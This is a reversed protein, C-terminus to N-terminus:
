LEFHEKLSLPACERPIQESPVVAMATLPMPFAVRLSCGLSVRMESEGQIYSTLDDIVAAMATTSDRSAPVWVQGGGSLVSQSGESVTLHPDHNVPM